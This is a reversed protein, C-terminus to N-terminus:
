DESCILVFDHLLCLTRGNFAYLDQGSNAVRTKCKYNETNKQCYCTFEGNANKNAGVAFMETEGRCSTACQRSTQVDPKHIHQEDVAKCFHGKAALTFDTILFNM